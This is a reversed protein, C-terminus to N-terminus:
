PTTTALSVLNLSVQESKKTIKKLSYSFWSKTLKKRQIAYQL